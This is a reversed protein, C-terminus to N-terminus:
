REPTEDVTRYKAPIAFLTPDPEARRIDKLAVIQEGTRPDDHQMLVFM